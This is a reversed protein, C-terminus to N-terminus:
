EENDKKLRRIEQEQAKIVNILNDAFKKEIEKRNCGMSYIFWSDICWAIACAWGCISNSLTAGNICAFVINIIFSLINIAYLLSTFIKEKKNM